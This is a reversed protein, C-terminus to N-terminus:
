KTQCSPPFPSPSPLFGVNYRLFRISSEGKGFIIAEKNGGKLRSIHSGDGLGQSHMGRKLSTRAGERLTNQTFFPYFVNSINLLAGGEQGDNLYNCGYQNVDRELSTNLVAQIKFNFLKQPKNKQLISDRYNTTRTRSAMKM